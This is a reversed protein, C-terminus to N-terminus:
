AAEMFLKESFLKSTFHLLSFGASGLSYEPSYCHENPADGLLISPPVIGCGMINKTGQQRAISKHM